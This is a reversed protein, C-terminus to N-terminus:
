SVSAGNLIDVSELDNTLKSLLRPNNAADNFLIVGSTDYCLVVEASIFTQFNKMKRRRLGVSPSSVPSLM